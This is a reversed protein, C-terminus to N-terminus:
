SHGGDADADGADAADVADADGADSESPPLGADDAFDGSSSGSTTGDDGKRSGPPLPQPNLSPDEEGGGVCAGAAVGSLIAIPLILKSWRRIRVGDLSLM